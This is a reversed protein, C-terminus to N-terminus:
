KEGDSDDGREEQLLVENLMKGLRHINYPKGLAAAFGKEEAAQMLPHADYGSALVVALGPSYSRLRRLAECAKEAGIISLDLLAADFPRGDAVATRLCDFARELCDAPEAAFGLHTLMDCSIQRIMAEDDVVLVRGKGAYSEESKSLKEPGPESVPEAPLLLRFIAGQEPPSAVTLDGHNARALALCNALGLGTGQKKTTFYPDFIREIVDPPIGPGADAVELEVYAGVLPGGSDGSFTRNSVRVQILGGEPMAQTANILLNNLIQCLHGEDVRVPWLAKDFEPRVRCNSSGIVFGVCERVIEPVRVLQTQPQAGIGGKMMRRSLDRARQAASEAVALMRDVTAADFHQERLMTINGLVGTLLNNFDHAVGSPLMSAAPSRGPLPPSSLMASVPRLVLSAGCIHRRQDRLPSIRLRIRRLARARSEIWHVEDPESERGEELVPDMALLGLPRRERDLLRLVEDLRRGYAEGEPWGTWEQALRNLFSLKGDLDITIVAEGLAQLVEALQDRERVPQWTIETFETLDRLVATWWGQRTSSPLLELHGWFRTGDRREILFRQDCPVESEVGQRLFAFASQNVQDGLLLRWGHRGLESRQFGTLSESAPNAYRLQDGVDELPPGAFVWVADPLSDCAVRAGELEPDIGSQLPLSDKLWDAGPEQRPPNM